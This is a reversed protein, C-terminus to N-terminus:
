LVNGFYVFFILGEKLFLLFALCILGQASILKVQDIFMSHVASSCLCSLELPCM